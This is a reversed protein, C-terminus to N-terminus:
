DGGALSTPPPKTQPTTGAVHPANKLQNGYNIKSTNFNDQKTIVPIQAGSIEVFDGSPVEVSNVFTSQTAASSYNTNVNGSLSLTPYLQGKISRIIREQSQTRLHVAKIQAFQQLATTYISDPAAHYTTDFAQEPLRELELSRDYPINLLQALSLKATEVAAENDAVAIEDNALQGKLDYYQAPPIAGSQNLIALRDVQKGTVVGQNRSSALIDEASLVGLYALIINITVNDKAQQLEMKSAQYGLTNGKIQNHLSSGNFLLLNSSAGYSAYDVNQTIPANTFPDISRGQNIGHDATANLSPFQAAKSQKLNVDAKQMQLNSQNVDLNNSIGMQIAQQLTLKNQAKGLPGVLAFFIYLFLQKM